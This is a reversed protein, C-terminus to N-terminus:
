GFAAPYSCARPFNTSENAIHQSTSAEVSPVADKRDITGDPPSDLKALLAEAKVTVCLPPRGM